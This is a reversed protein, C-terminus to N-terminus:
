PTDPPTCGGGLQQRRSNHDQDAAVVGGWFFIAQLGLDLKKETMVYLNLRVLIDYCNMQRTM